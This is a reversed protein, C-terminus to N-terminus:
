VLPLWPLTGFIDNDITPYGNFTFAHSHDATVIILTDSISTMNMAREVAHSLAVADALSRQANTAHHAHDVRGGVCSVGGIRSVGRCIVHGKCMVRGSVSTEVCSVGGLHSVGRCIVHGKCM